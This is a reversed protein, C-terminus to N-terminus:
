SAFSIFPRFTLPHSTPTPDRGIVFSDFLWQYSLAGTPGEGNDPRGAVLYSLRYPGSLTFTITQSFAGPNTATQLFAYQNGDPAPRMSSEPTILFRGPREVRIM